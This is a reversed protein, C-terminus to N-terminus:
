RKRFARREAYPVCMKCVKIPQGKEDVYNRAERAKKGCLACRSGFLWSLM